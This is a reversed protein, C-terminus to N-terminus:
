YLIINYKNRLYITNKYISCKIGKYLENIYKRKISISM